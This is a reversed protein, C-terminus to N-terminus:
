DFSQNGWYDHTSILTPGYLLSFVSSSIRKFHPTLSSEQSDRPSWGTWRLSWNQINMPLVSTSASVGFRQGGSTFFQGVLFSGRPFVSPLLLPLLPDSSQIADSVWHVHTQTLEMLQHRIPFGPKSCERPDCLTLCLQVVSSFQLDKYSDQFCPSLKFIELFLLM